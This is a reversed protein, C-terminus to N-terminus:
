YNENTKKTPVPVISKINNKNILINRDDLMTFEIFSPLELHAKYAKVHLSKAYGNGTNVDERLTVIHKNEM